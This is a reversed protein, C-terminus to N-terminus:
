VTYTGASLGSVTFVTASTAALSANYIPTATTANTVSFSNIPWPFTAAPVLMITATGNAQNPCVMTTGTVQRIGPPSARLVFKVSGQFDYSSLYSPYFGQGNTPGNVNYGSAAGATGSIAAPTSNYWQFNSGGSTVLFAQSGCFPKNVIVPVPPAAT